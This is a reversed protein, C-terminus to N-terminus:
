AKISNIFRNFANKAKSFQNQDVDFEGYWIYNYLYSTYSFEEKLKPQTIEFFYDSNTKEVDYNILEANTLTRLLWLYYYRIALRYNGQTEANNILSKFDAQHINAEVDTVPIINKDSSKGFVWNGEKNIIAKFLFYIVLLFIIIAAIWMALEVYKDSGTGTKINFLNKVWQKFRTWWGSTEVTREYIFEEGAYKTSLEEFSRPKIESTDIVLSDRQVILTSTTTNAMCISQLMIVLLFVIHKFIKNVLVLKTSLM